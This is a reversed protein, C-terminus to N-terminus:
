DKKELSYLKIHKQKGRLVTDDIFEAKVNKLDKVQNLLEESILFDRGLRKCDEQIRATTNLVDGLYTIERKLEGVWTVIVHGGHLGAKFEPSIGYKNVYKLKEAEILERMQFFCNIMNNNKLGKEYTWSLIVEDGVYKYINANTNQIAETIDSFFDQLFMAFQLHGLKEAITTSGKLDIFCFILKVERPTHYRGIVFNWLQGKGHLSNIERLGTTLIAILFVTTVNIFYMDDKFYNILEEQLSMKDNIVYWIGNITALLFTIIITYCFSRVLVLYIFQRKRFWGKLLIEFILISVMLLAGMFSARIMLPIFLQPDYGTKMRVFYEVMAYVVGIIVGGILYHQIKKREAIIKKLKM